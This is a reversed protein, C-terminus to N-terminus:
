AHQVPMVGEILLGLSDAYSEFEELWAEFMASVVSAEGNLEFSSLSRM